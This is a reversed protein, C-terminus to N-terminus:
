ETFSAQIKYQSKKIIEISKPLVKPTITEDGLQPTHKQGFIQSTLNQKEDISVSFFGFVLDHHTHLFQLMNLWKLLLDESSTGKLNITYQGVPEIEQEQMIYAFLGKAINEFAKNLNSGYSTITLPQPEKKITFPKM